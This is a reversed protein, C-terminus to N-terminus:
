LPLCIIKFDSDDGLVGTGTQMDTAGVGDMNQHFLAFSCCELILM